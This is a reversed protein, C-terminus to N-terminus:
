YREPRVRRALDLFVQWKPRSEAIRPGAIESSFIVRRETSTETVGAPIEYRTTASLLIVMEGPQSLM